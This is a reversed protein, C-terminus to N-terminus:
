QKAPILNNVNGQADTRTDWDLSCRWVGDVIFKFEHDAAPDIVLTKKWNGVAADHDLTILQSWNDFTGTVVVRSAAHNWTFEVADGAPALTVIETLSSRKQLRSKSEGAAKAQNVTSMASNTRSKGAPLTSGVVSGLLNGM